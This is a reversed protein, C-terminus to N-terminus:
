FAVEISNEAFKVTSWPDHCAGHWPTRGVRIACLDGMEHLTPLKQVIM